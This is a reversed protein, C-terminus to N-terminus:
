VQLEAAAAKAEAHARGIESPNANQITYSIAAKVAQNVCLGAATGWTQFDRVQQKTLNATVSRSNIKM